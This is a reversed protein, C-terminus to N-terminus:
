NGPLAFAVIADGPQSVAHGGAAIAVFQKGDPRVRYTLPTAHGAFPLTARWLEQGSEINFSRIYGDTTASIFVLKSATVIPGGLNPVGIDIWFPWPAQKRTSGLPVEWLIEGHAIDIATLTGWPPANCPIGFPSVLLERRIAYPTGEMAGYLKTTGPLGASSVSVVEDPLAEFEERPILKVATPVRSQNVVFIHREPDLAGSGWNIGGLAGPYQVSGNVTPPTFVGDSRLAEIKKRCRRRDWFTIGWADQSQLKPPFISPPKIPFPQTASLYDGPAPEQPVPREEMPLLAEGTERNLVFVHGMKTSVTLAPISAGAFPFDFLTPQAGIDYDWIDHHVTQFHWAIEGANDGQTHIAVVSASYHDLGQREGGFYDPPANGTPVFLLDREADAAMSAWVNATARRYPGERPSQPQDPPVPDWAWRLAGSRTDFARVVGPPADVRVNDAVLAGVIVLDNLVLPASTVYYEWAPADGLGERLKIRGEDGFDPCTQGTKADLAILEADQTGTFIRQRCREEDSMSDEWFAVGRCTLPYAGHLRRLSLNPDFVWKEAGTEADLAIVRNFPTCFYMSDSVVIPTVQLSTRTVEASGESIDGSNYRWAEELYRVNDPTIQTLSSYRLGDLGNGYHRWDGIPGKHDLAPPPSCAGALLSMAGILLGVKFIEIRVPNLPKM